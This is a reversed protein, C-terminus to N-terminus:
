ARHSCPVRRFLFFGFPHLVATLGDLGLHRVCGSFPGSFAAPSARRRLSLLRVARSLPGLVAADVLVALPHDPPSVDDLSAAFTAAETPGVSSSEGGPEALASTLPPRPPPAVSVVRAFCGSETLSRVVVARLANSFLAVAVTLPAEEGTSRRGPERAAEVVQARAEDQRM